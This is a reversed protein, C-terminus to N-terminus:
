RFSASARRGSRRPARRSISMGYGAVPERTWSLRILDNIKRRIEKPLISSLLGIRM